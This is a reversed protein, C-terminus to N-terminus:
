WEWPLSVERQRKLVKGLNLSELMRPDVAFFLRLDTQFQGRTLDTEFRAM